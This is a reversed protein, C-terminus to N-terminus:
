DDDADDDDDDDNDDGSRTDRTPVRLLSETVKRPGDVM